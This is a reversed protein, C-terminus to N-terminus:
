VWVPIDVEPKHKICTQIGVPGNILEGLTECGPSVRLSVPDIGRGDTQMSREVGVSEGEHQKVAAALGAPLSEGEPIRRRTGTIPRHGELRRRRHLELRIRGIVEKRRGFVFSNTQDMRAAATTAQNVGPAGRSPTDCAFRMESGRPETPGHVCVPTSDDFDVPTRYSRVRRGVDGADVNGARRRGVAVVHRPLRDAGPDREAFGHRRGAARDQGERDPGGGPVGGVLRHLAGGGFQGEGIGHGGSVPVVVADGDGSVGEAAGDSGLARHGVGVEAVAGHGVLPGVPDIADGEDLLGDPHGRTRVGSGPVTRALRDLDGHVERVRHRNGAVGPEPELKAVAGAM